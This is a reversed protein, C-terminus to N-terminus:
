PNEARASSQPGNRRFFLTSLKERGLVRALEKVAFFPFLAVFIVLSNALIEHRGMQAAEVIGGWFGMEHWLGKVGHELIKFLAVFMAFVISKYITPYVLPKSELGHGLRLLGGIMIVKGLLLAEIVAIWYNTYTIDHAALLLRRHWAFAAFVLLLYVVNLGYEILEHRVRAKIETAKV